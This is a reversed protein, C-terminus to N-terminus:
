GESHEHDDRRDQKPDEEQVIARKEDNRWNRGDSACQVIANMVEDRQRTIDVRSEFANRLKM